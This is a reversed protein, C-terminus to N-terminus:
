PSFLMSTKNNVINCFQFLMLFFSNISVKLYFIPFHEICSFHPMQINFLLYCDFCYSVFFIFDTSFMLFYSYLLSISYLVIFFPYSITPIPYHNIVLTEIILLWLSFIVRFIIFYLYLHLCLVIFRMCYWFFCFNYQEEHKARSANFNFNYFSITFM